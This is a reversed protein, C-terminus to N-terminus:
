ARTFELIVDSYDAYKSLLAERRAIEFDHFDFGPAVTCGALTYSDPNETKAAFWCGAPIVQQLADGLLLEPGLRKIKLEHDSDFWYILLSSGAHFNWIEDSKIRHFSSFDRGQLLYYISTSLNRSGSFGEPLETESLLIPSRYIEKFWGGEPHSELALHEIFYDPSKM